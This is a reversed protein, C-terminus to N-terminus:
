DYLAAAWSPVFTDLLLCPKGLYSRLRLSRQVSVDAALGMATAIPQSPMEDNVEILQVTTNRSLWEAQQVFGEIQGKLTSPHARDAVFTGAGHVRRVLDEDALLDLAKRITIRAVGYQQALQKEGPLQTQPAYRGRLIEERLLLYVQHSLTAGKHRPAQVNLDTISTQM